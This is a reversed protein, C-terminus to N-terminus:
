AGISLFSLGSSKVGNNNLRDCSPILKSNYWSDEWAIYLENFNDQNYLWLWLEIKSYSPLWHWRIKSNYVQHYYLRTLLWKKTNNHKYRESIRCEKCLRQLWDKNNKNNWFQNEEKTNECMYCQKM